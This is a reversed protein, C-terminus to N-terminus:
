VLSGYVRTRKPPLPCGGVVVFGLGAGYPVSDNVVSAPPGPRTTTPPAPGGAMKVVPTVPGTPGNRRQSVPAGAPKMPSPTEGCATVPLGVAVFETVTVPVSAPPGPM